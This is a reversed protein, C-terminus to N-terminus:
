QVRRIKMETFPLSHYWGKWYYWVIGRSAYDDGYHGNLNSQHCNNYWWAGTFDVACNGTSGWNSDDNDNDKTTFKMLNHYALSDGATGSYGSVHLTYDTTSNGIYFTSYSAHASNGDKDRMDVRLKTSVSGNALHHLKSLGLWYEGSTNGFGHVYDIWNLYFDVSGDMRRQFVTWGGGDTEM